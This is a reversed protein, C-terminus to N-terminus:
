SGCCCRYLVLFLHRRVNTSISSLVGNVYIHMTSTAAAADKSPQVVCAVVAFVGKEMLGNNTSIEEKTDKTDQADQADKGEKGEKGEREEKVRQDVVLPVASNQGVVRGSHTLYVSAQGRDKEGAESPKFRMLVSKKSKSNPWNKGDMRVVAVVTFCTNKRQEEAAVTGPDADPDPDPNPNAVYPFSLRVGGSTETKRVELWSPSGSLERKM